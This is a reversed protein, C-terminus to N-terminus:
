QRIFVARTLLRSIFRFNNLGFRSSAEPSFNYGLSINRIKVFGADRIGLLGSFDDQSGSTAQGLIPKQFNADTNEPTWYDVERQNSRATMAEGGISATYDLRSIILMSLEFGKYGISNNWGLTWRPSRNGLITRDESTM